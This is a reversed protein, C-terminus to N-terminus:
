REWWRLKRLQKEAREPALHYLTEAPPRPVYRPPEVRVFVGKVAKAVVLGCVTCVYEGTTRDFFVEGGCEPCRKPVFAM